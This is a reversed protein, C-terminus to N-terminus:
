LRFVEVSKNLTQAALLLQKAQVTNSESDDFTSKALDNIGVVSKNIEEAVLTQQETATAIQCNMDQIVGVSSRIAELAQNADQSKAVTQRADVANTQMLEVSTNAETQLRTIMGQIETTSEQTRNALNRVEDAVVAFGRGQEGARAAEIAANLALLNTQDAISCIVELIQGINDTESALKHIVQQVTGIGDLLNNIRNGMDEVVDFGRQSHNNAEVVARSAAVANRAVDQVTMTMENMAASTQELELMQSKSSSTVNAASENIRDSSESLQESTTNIRVITDRLNKVMILIAAYVGTENGSAARIVSLDGAAVRQVLQEIELPEGGIPIYIIKVVLFYTVVLSILIFLIAITVSVALAQHSASLISDWRDWAWTTWGLNSMMSSVVLYEDDDFSYSHNSKSKGAFAQYSPRLELLNKGLYDPYKAALIYGEANSVFIQNNETLSNIFQTIQDIKLNVSLVAVVQGLYRVPVAAAMVAYGESSVYPRTLIHKEGNFGRLYWERQKEKANFNLVLGDSATSYTLGSEVAVYVNIVDLNDAVSGLSGLLTELDFSGKNDFELEEATVHLVDFIRAMKQEVAQAILFAQNDLTSTYHEVSEKKFNIYSVVSILLIVASFLLGMCSLIKVKATMM